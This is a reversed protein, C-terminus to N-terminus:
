TRKKIWKVILNLFGDCFEKKLLYYETAQGTNAKQFLHNADPFVEITVDKNASVKVAEKLAPINMDPPVQMDKKGFIALLPAKVQRLAEAPDYSIFFKFWPSTIQGLSQTVRFRAYKEKDTVNKRISDPLLDIAKINFELLEAELRKMAATDTPLDYNKIYNYVRNQFDIIWPIESEDVGQAKNMSIIQFNIITDGPVATGAMMICFAPSVGADAALMAAIIGGESHGFIGVKDKNIEKRSKLYKIGAAADMAFDKTTATKAEGRSKGYGRDDYRLVAIGNESLKEAIIKFIKFGFIDEDRNQLGSGTVLIVAPFNEVGKPLTLTGHLENAGNLFIVEEESFKASNGGKEECYCSIVAITFFIFWVAKNM